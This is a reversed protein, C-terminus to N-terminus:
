HFTAHSLQYLKTRTVCAPLISFAQLLESLPTAIKLRSLAALVPTPSHECIWWSTSQRREQCLRSKRSSYLLSSSRPAIRRRQQTRKEQLDSSKVGPGEAGAILTAHKASVLTGTLSQVDTAHALSTWLRRM